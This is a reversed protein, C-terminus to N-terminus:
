CMPAHALSLCIVRKEDPPAWLLKLQVRFNWCFQICCVLWETIYYFHNLGQRLSIGTWTCFITQFVLAFVVWALGQCLLQFVLPSASVVSDTAHTHDVPQDRFLLQMCQKWHGHEENQGVKDRALWCGWASGRPPGCSTRGEWGAGKVGRGMGLWFWNRNRGLM